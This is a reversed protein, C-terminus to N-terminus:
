FGRSSCMECHDCPKDGTELDCTKKTQLQEFYDVLETIAEDIGFRQQSPHVASVFTGGTGISAPRHEFSPQPNPLQGSHAHAARADANSLSSDSAQYLTTQFDNQPNNQSDLRANSSHREGTAKGQEVQVLRRNLEAVQRRLREVERAEETERASNTNGTARGDLERAIRRAVERAKHEQNNM